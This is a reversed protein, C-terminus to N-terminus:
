QCSFGGSLQKLQEDVDTIAEVHQHESVLRCQWLQTVNSEAV